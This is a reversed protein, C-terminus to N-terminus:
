LLVPLLRTGTCNKYEFATWPASPGISAGCQASEMVPSRPPLRRSIAPSPAKCSQCELVFPPPSIPINQYVLAGGVLAASGHRYM